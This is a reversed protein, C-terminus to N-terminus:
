ALDLRLIRILNSTADDYRNGSITKKSFFAPVPLSSPPPSAFFASGAYYLPSVPVSETRTSVLEPETEPKPTPPETSSLGPVERTKIKKTESVPDPVTKNLEEGRKLIKVQGMALNKSPNRPPVVARAPPSNNQSRNLGRKGRSAHNRNLRNPNTNPNRPHKMHPSILNQKSFPDRLCDQPNLVAVGM